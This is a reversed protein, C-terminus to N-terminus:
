LCAKSGPFCLRVILGVGKGSRTPAYCLVHEIGVYFLPKRRDCRNWAGSRFKKRRVITFKADPRTALFTMPRNRPLGRPITELNMAAAKPVSLRAISVSPVASAPERKTTVKAVMARVGPRRAVSPRGIGPQRPGGSPGGTDRRFLCRQRIAERPTPAQIENVGSDWNNM